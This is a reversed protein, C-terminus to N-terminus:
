RSRLTAELAGTRAHVDHPQAGEAPHERCEKEAAAGIGTTIREEHRRRDGYPDQRECDGRDPGVHEDPRRERRAM